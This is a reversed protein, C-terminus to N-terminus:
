DTPNTAMRCDNILASDSSVAPDRSAGFPRLPVALIIRLRRPNVSWGGVFRSKKRSLLRLLPTIDLRPIERADSRPFTSTSRSQLGSTTSSIIPRTAFSLFHQRPALDPSNCGRQRYISWDLRPQHLRFLSYALLRSREGASPCCILAHHRSMTCSTESGCIHYSVEQLLTLVANSESAM